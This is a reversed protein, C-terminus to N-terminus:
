FRKVIDPLLEGAKGYLSIDVISSTPTKEINIEITHINHQRAYEPIAAAPWVIGSTGCILATDAQALFALARQWIDQPIMEGFWVVDPRLTGGCSCLPIPDNQTTGEPEITCTCGCKLCRARFINGHLELVNISGARQHLNDVNQTLLMFSPTHKELAVIADHAPNPHAKRIIDQRWHYWEWVLVPDKKFADPTALDMASYSKWLGNKGRFTPIGSEASIGAGTLIFLCQSNQLIGAAQEMTDHPSDAPM